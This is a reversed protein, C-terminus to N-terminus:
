EEKMWNSIFSFFDKSVSGMFEPHFQVTIVQKDKSQTAEVLRTIPEVALPSLSPAMQDLFYGQHHMSNVQWPFVNSIASDPEGWIIGHISPHYLDQTLVGGELANVLQHGRCVGLIKKGCERLKKYLPVEIADRELEPYSQLNNQKYLAPSIDSGGTFIMGSVEALDEGSYVKIGPYFM